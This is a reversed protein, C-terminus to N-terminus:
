GTLAAAIFFYFYLQEPLLLIDISFIFVFYDGVGSSNCTGLVFFCKPVYFEQRLVSQGKNQKEVSMSSGGPTRHSFFKVFLKIKHFIFDVRANEERQKCCHHNM